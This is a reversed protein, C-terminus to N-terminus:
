MEKRAYISLSLLVSGAFVVLLVAPAMYALSKLTEAEPLRLGLHSALVVLATPAFLVLLMLMRGKEVGFKFVIPFILSMFLMTVGFFALSTIVTEGFKVGSWLYFALNLALAVAGLMLGLVYKSLVMELRSVPMSLSYKDWRAREDYSMATVPLMACLVSIIGAFMSPNNTSRALFIYFLVMAAMTTGQRKLSILDKLILGKM